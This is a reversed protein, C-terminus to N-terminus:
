EGQMTEISAQGVTECGFCSMTMILMAITLIIKKMM